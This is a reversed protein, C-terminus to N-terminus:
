GPVPPFSSSIPEGRRLRGRMTVVRAKWEDSLEPIAAVERGLAENSLENFMFRHLRKISWRDQARHIVEVADGVSIEAPEIVKAYFGCAEIDHMIKLIKPLGIALGITKCRETPQTVRLLAKGVRFDDGVFVADELLGAASINEGFTPAHLRSGLRSEIVPYHEPPFIHLARHATHHDPESSEDGIIGNFSLRAKGIPRKRIATRLTHGNSVVITVVSGAFLAAISSAANM